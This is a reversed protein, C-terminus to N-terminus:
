TFIIVSKNPNHKVIQKYISRLDIKLNSSLLENLFILVNLYFWVLFISVTINLETIGAEWVEFCLLLFEVSAFKVLNKLINEIRLSACSSKTIYYDALDSYICM